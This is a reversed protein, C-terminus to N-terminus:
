RALQITFREELYVKGENNVYQRRRLAGCPYYRCKEQYVTKGAELRRFMIEQGKRNYRRQWHLDPVANPPSGVQQVLRGHKDYQNKLMYRTGFDHDTIMQTVAQGRANFMSKTTTVSDGSVNFVVETQTSLVGNKHTALYHHMIGNRAIFRATDTAIAATWQCQRYVPKGQVTYVTVLTDGSRSYAWREVQQDSHFRTYRYVIRGISVFRSRETKLTDRGHRIVFQSDPASFRSYFGITRMFERGDPLLSSESVVGNASCRVTTVQLKGNQYRNITDCHPSYRESVILVPNGPKKGTYLVRYLNSEAVGYELMKAHHLAATLSDTGFLVQAGLLGPLMLVVMLVGRMGCIDANYSIPGPPASLAARCLRQGQQWCLTFRWHVVPPMAPALRHLGAHLRLRFLGM